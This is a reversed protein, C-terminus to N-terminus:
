TPANIERQYWDMITGSHLTKYTEPQYQGMSNSNHLCRMCQLLQPAIVPARILRLQYWSTSTSLACASTRKHWVWSKGPGQFLLKKLM